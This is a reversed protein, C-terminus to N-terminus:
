HVSLGAKKRRKAVNALRDRRREQKRLLRDDAAELEASDSFRAGRLDSQSARRSHQAIQEATAIHSELIELRTRSSLAYFQALTMEELPAHYEEAGDRRVECAIIRGDPMRDLALGVVNYTSCYAPLREAPCTIANM